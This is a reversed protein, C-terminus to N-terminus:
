RTNEVCIVGREANFILMPLDHSALREACGFRQRISIIFDMLVVPLFVRPM